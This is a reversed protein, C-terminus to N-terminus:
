ESFKQRTWKFTGKGLLNGRLSQMWIGELLVWTKLIGYLSRKNGETKHVHDGYSRVHAGYPRCHNLPVRQRPDTSNTKSFTKIFHM